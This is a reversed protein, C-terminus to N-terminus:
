LNKCLASCQPQIHMLYFPFQPKSVVLEANNTLETTTTKKTEDKTKKITCNKISSM